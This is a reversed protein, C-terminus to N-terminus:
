DKTQQCKSRSTSIPFFKHLLRTWLDEVCFHAVRIASWERGKKIRAKITTTGDLQLTQESGVDLAGEAVVGGSARPDEGNVTYYLTGERNPNKMVVVLEPPVPGGSHSFIPPDLDPYYGESRLATIFRGVSGQMRSVVRDVEPYFTDDRTRTQEDLSARADGWRASEAVVADEISAALIKWRAISNRDTLGGDNFCHEYVRDAFLMMFDKNKRLSHWIGVMNGGTRRESSRFPLRIEWPHDSGRRIGQPQQPGMDSWSREADWVLFLFPEPPHNRNTGYWNNYPWDGLGMLWCLILYDAFRELDLYQAMERYHERVRMDKDKLPGRLYDWRESGGSRPGHHNVSFWDERQGGLHNAAFWADPRECANYLGWYLGNIYLHVFLGHSSIGSVAIQSDRAWQDRLYTTRDPQFGVAFSRGNGARLVIRDLIDAASDGSLVAEQFLTSELKAPGFERKFKLKISRKVAPRAHSEIACDVQFNKEPRHPYLVEVSAPVTPGLGDRAYYVGGFGFMDQKDVAISITPIDLLGKRIVRRYAPHDVISPDM